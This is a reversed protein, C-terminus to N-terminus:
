HIQRSLLGARVYGVKNHYGIKCWGRAWRGTGRPCHLVDVTEGGPITKEVSSFLSPRRHLSAANTTVVPAVLLQEGKEKLGSAHIYGSKGGYSVRCWYRRWGSACTQIKVDAGAPISSVIPWAHGPGSRMHLPSTFAAANALGIFALIAAASTGGLILKQM